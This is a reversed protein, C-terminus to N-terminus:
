GGWAPAFFVSLSLSLSISLFLSLSLMCFLSLADFYGAVLCVMFSSSLVPKKKKTAVKKLRATGFDSQPTLVAGTYV